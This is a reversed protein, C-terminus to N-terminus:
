FRFRMHKIGNIFNSLLYSPEGEVRIEPMRTFLERFMVTIERRALHAGLCYHPGPGGFGVHPNPARTIDFVDPDVFVAEDRNASNYFLLVKDGKKYDMGNMTHDRALTRRFQIVPTSYRIIEEVAGPIYKEFDSMLLERQGPNDTFAKLGHSIANRTTESGAVVLLIFFSGLEQTTLREDGNVLLSTLDGTPNLRRERGLRQALASLEHGAQLLKILGRATAWRSPRAEPRAYNVGFGSYESDANALITNTRSLVMGHFKPPIGIMDCIVQVPLKAAIQPVFDGPGEKVARDVIEEAARQLDEEMKALVRPTFARSVIRRLRAHRPDDMNIMSGFYLALWRPMDPISNSTPESSFVGANRSAESVDAHRVLAYFGRGHPLFPIKDEPLFVPRDLERLRRFAELRQARPQGWFPIRSLDLEPAVSM